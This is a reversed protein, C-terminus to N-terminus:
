FVMEPYAAHLADCVADRMEIASQRVINKYMDRSGDYEPMKQHRYIVGRSSSVIAGLGDENFCPIVDAAAGGQAGYGPVLFFNNKMISRLQRAEDPFTAGVVAGVSSYGCEGVCTSGISNVWGALWRSISEGEANTAEAIEVSGPNSTKVLVFIGKGERAATDVFPQMSDTGLFPSVTLFDANIPGDKALHAYAYVRATNGIDNRKSDDVVILGKSNACSVIQQHVRVGEAGFVEFFAMQPKVAPVIDAVAEIVDTAWALVADAYSLMGSKYCDPLKEWEPDIGVICPNKKRRIEEVLRDVVM